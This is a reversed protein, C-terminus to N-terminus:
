ANEYQVPKVFIFTSLPLVFYSLLFLQLAIISVAFLLNSNPHLFVVIGLETVLM